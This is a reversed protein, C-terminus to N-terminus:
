SIQTLRQRRWYNKRKGKSKRQNRFRTMKMMMKKMELSQKRRGEELRRTKKRPMNVGLRPDVPTM